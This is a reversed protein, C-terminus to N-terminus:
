NWSRNRRVLENALCGDFVFGHDALCKFWLDDGGEPFAVSEGQQPV